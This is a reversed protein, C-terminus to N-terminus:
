SQPIADNALERLYQIFSNEALPEIPSIAAIMFNRIDTGTSATQGTTRNFIVYLQNVTFRMLADTPRHNRKLENRYIEIVLMLHENVELTREIMYSLSPYDRQLGLAKARLALYQNRDENGMLLIDLRDRAEEDVKRLKEAYKEYKKKLQNFDRISFKRPEIQTNQANALLTVSKQISNIIEDERTSWESLLIPRLIGMIQATQEPDYNHHVGVWGSSFSKKSRHVKAM